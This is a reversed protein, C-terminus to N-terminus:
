FLFPLQCLRDKDAGGEVIEVGLDQLDADSIDKGGMLYSLNM